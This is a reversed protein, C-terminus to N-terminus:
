KISMFPKDSKPHLIPCVMDRENSVEALACLADLEAFCKVASSWHERNHYFREFMDRILPSIRAKYLM